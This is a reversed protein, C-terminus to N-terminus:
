RAVITLKETVKNRHNAKWDQIPKFPGYKHQQESFTDAYPGFPHDFPKSAVNPWDRSFDITPRTQSNVFAAVDWAEEDSLQPRNYTAGLPMNYRVYGAMNSLRFLGAGQNFSHPGWLPPYTYSRGGDALLGAGNAQHCTQCKRTYVVLGRAPSAARKLNKVKFLGVGRPKKALPVDSGLWKMYALIATMERSASDLPKGNLSREFCDNVRKAISEVTGSRERFRPYTAQVASYNNGWPQTGANLHCNQCNMGNSLHAVSGNPGVYNATHAILERGYRVRAQEQASLRSLRWDSPPTWLNTINTDRPTQVTVATPDAAPPHAMRWQYTLAVSLLGVAVVILGALAWFSRTLNRILPDEGPSNM